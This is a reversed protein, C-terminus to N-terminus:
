PAGPAGPGLPLVTLLVRETQEGYHFINNKIKNKKNNEILWLRKQKKTNNKTTTTQKIDQKGGWPSAPAGPDFPSGPALPSDTLLLKGCNVHLYVTM